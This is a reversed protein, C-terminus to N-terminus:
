FDVLYKQQQYFKWTEVFSNIIIINSVACYKEVVTPTKENKMWRVLETSRGEILCKLHRRLMYTM